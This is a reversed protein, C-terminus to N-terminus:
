AHVANGRFAVEAVHNWDAWGAVPTEQTTRIATQHAVLTPTTLTCPKHRLVTAAMDWHTRRLQRRILLLLLQVLLLMTAEIVWSCSTCSELLLLLLLLLLLMVLLLLV